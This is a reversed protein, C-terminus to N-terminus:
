FEMTLRVGVEQRNVVASRPLYLEQLDVCISPGVRFKDGGLFIRACGGLFYNGTAEGGPMAVGNMESPLSIPALLMAFYYHFQLRYNAAKAYMISEIRLYEGTASYPVLNDVSTFVYYTLPTSFHSILFRWEVWSTAISFGTRIDSYNIELPSGSAVLSNSTVKYQEYTGGLVFRYRSGTEFEGAFYTSAQTNFPFTTGSRTYTLRGNFVGVDFRYLRIAHSMMPALLIAAGVGLAWLRRLLISERSIKVM